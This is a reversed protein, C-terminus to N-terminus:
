APLSLDRTFIAEGTNKARAAVASDPTAAMGIDRVFEVEDGLGTMLEVLSRPLNADILFRM